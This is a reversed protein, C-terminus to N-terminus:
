FLIINVAYFYNVWFELLIFLFNIAKTLRRYTWLTPIGTHPDSSSAGTSKSTHSGSVDADSIWLSNRRLIFEASRSSQVCAASHFARTESVDVSMSAIRANVTIPSLGAGAAVLFSM